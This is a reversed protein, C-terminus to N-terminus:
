RFCGSPFPIPFPCLIPFLSPPRSLAGQGELFGAAEGLAPGSGGSATWCLSGREERRGTGGLEEWDGKGVAAAGCLEPGQGLVGGM